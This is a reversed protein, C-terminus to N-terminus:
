CEGDSIQGIWCTQGPRDDLPLRHASPSWGRGAVPDPWPTHALLSRYPGFFDNAEFRGPGSAEADTASLSDLGVGGHCHSPAIQSERVAVHSNAPITPIRAMGPVKVASPKNCSHM